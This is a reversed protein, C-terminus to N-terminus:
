IILTSKASKPFEQEYNREANKVLKKVKKRQNKISPLFRNTEQPHSTEGNGGRVQSVTGLIMLMRTNWYIRGTQIKSVLKLKM